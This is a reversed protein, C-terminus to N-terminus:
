HHSKGWLSGIYLELNDTGIVTLKYLDLIDAKIMYRILERSKTTKLHNLFTSKAVGGEFRPGPCDSYINYLIKCNKITEPTSPDYTNNCIKRYVSSDPSEVQTETVKLYSVLEQVQKQVTDITNTTETQQLTSM